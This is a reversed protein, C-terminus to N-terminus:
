TTGNREEQRLDAQIGMWDTTARGRAEEGVGRFGEAM